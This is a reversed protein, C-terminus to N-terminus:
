ASDDGQRAATIPLALRLVLGLTRPPRTFPARVFFISSSRRRGRWKSSRRRRKRRGCAAVL